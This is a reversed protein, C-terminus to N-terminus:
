PLATVPPLATEPSLVTDPPLENRSASAHRRGLLLGDADKHDLVVGDGGVGVDHVDVTDGTEGRDALGVGARLGPACEVACRDVQKEQVEVQRVHVAELQGAGQPGGAVVRVHYRHRRRPVEGDYTLTDGEADDLVDQLGEGERGQPVAEHAVGLEM